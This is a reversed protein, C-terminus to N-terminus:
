EAATQIGRADAMFRALAQHPEPGLRLGLKSRRWLVDEAREAWESRM